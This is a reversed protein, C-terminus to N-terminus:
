DALSIAREPCAKMGLLAAKEEGPPVEVEGGKDLNFGHDDLEFVNPAYKWCRSHGSCLIGDVKLRM